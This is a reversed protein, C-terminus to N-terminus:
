TTGRRGRAVVLSLAIPSSSTSTARRPRTTELMMTAKATAPLWTSLPSQGPRVLSHTPLNRVGHGTPPRRGHGPVPGIGGGGSGEERIRLRRHAGRREAGQGAGARQRGRVEDGGQGVRRGDHPSPRRLQRRAEGPVGNGGQGRDEVIRIGADYLGRGPCRTLPSRWFGPHDRRQRRHRRVVVIRCAPLRGHGREAGDAVGRSQGGDQRGGGVAGRDPPPRHQCQRGEVTRVDLGRELPREGIAVPLDALRRLVHAAVM